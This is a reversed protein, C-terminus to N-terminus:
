ETEGKSKLMNRYSDEFNPSSEHWGLSEAAQFARTNQDQYHQLRNSMSQSVSDVGELQLSDILASLLGGFAHGKKLFAYAQIPHMELALDSALIGLEFQGEEIHHEILTGLLVGISERNSLTRLYVGSDMARDSIEFQEKLWETRAPHGGNTTEINWTKGTAPDMFRCLLHLPAESLFVQAGIRQCLGAFLIPMTVCNGLREELYFGLQRTDSDIGYPDEFNYRFIREGNWPGPQYLYAQVALMRDMQSADPPVMDALESVMVEVLSILRQFDTTPNAVQDICVKAELLDIEQESRKSLSAIADDPYQAHVVYTVILVLFFRIM